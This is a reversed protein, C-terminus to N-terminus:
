PKLGCFYHFDRVKVFAEGEGEDLGLYTSDTTSDTASDEDHRGRRATRTTNIASLRSEHRKGAKIICCDLGIEMKHCIEAAALQFEM